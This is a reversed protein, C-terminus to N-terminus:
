QHNEPKTQSSPDRHGPRSRRPSEPVWGFNEYADLFLSVDKAAVSIEKYEYGIYTNEPEPNM